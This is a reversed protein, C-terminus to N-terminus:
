SHWAWGGSMFFAGNTARKENEAAIRQGFMFFAFTNATKMNQAHWVRSVRGMCHTKRTQCSSMNLSEGPSPPHALFLTLFICLSFFIAPMGPVGARKGDGHGETSRGHKTPLLTHLFMATTTPNHHHSPTSFLHWFLFDANTSAHFITPM